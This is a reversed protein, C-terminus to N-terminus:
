TAIFDTIRLGRKVRENVVNEDIFRCPRAPGPSDEFFEDTVRRDFLILDGVVFVLHFLPGACCTKYM